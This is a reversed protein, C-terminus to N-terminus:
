RKSGFLRLFGASTVVTASHTADEMEQPTLTKPKLKNQQRMNMQLKRNGKDPGGEVKGGQPRWLDHAVWKGNGKAKVNDGSLCNTPNQGRAGQKEV